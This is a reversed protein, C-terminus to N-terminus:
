VSEPARAQYIQLWNGCTDDFIAITATGVDVGEAKFTVGAAKLRETEAAIDDVAFANMPIGQEYLAAQFTASVEHNAPELVLEVAASTQASKVTLWRAEGFSIDTAKAFGLVDTYFDLAKQQDNVIVSSLEIRM